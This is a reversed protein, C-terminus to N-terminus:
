SGEKRQRHWTIYRRLDALPITEQRLDDISSEACVDIRGLRAYDEEGILHQLLYEALRLAKGTEYVRDPVVVRIGLESPRAKSQLPVFGTTDSHLLIGDINTTFPEDHSSKLAQWVLGRVQPASSVICRVLDFLNSQGGASLIIRREGDTDVVEAYIGEFCSELLSSVEAAFAAPRLGRWAPYQQSFKQWYEDICPKM